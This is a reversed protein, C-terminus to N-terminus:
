AELLVAGSTRALNRDFTFTQAIGKAKASELIVQDAFGAKGSAYAFMAREVVERNELAFAETELVTNLFQILKEKSFGFLSRLAWAAEILVVTGIFVQGHERVLAVAQRHQQGDDNIFIRLFINTDIGIAPM